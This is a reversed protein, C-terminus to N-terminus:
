GMLEQYQSAAEAPDVATIKILMGGKGTIETKKPADLGYLEALQKMAQLPNHMKLTIGHEKQSIESIAGLEEEGVDDFDEISVDNVYVEEGEDTYGVLRKKVRAVNTIRARSLETLRLTMEARSMCMADLDDTKMAMRFNHVNADRLMRTACSSLVADTSYEGGAKVLAQKPSHGHELWEVFGRQLPTLIKYLKKQEETMKM